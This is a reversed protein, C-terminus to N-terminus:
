IKGIKDGLKYHEGLELNMYYSKPFIYEMNSGFRILGIREGKSIEDGVKANVVIRNKYFIKPVWGGLVGIGAMPKKVILHLEFEKGYNDVCVVKVREADGKKLAKSIEIIRCDLPAIMFHRDLPSLYTLYYVKEELERIKKVKSSSPSIIQSKDEDIDDLNNRFFFVVVGISIFLLYRVYKKKYFIILLVFLAVLLRLAYILNYLIFTEDLM